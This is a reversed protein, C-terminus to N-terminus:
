KDALYGGGTLDLEVVDENGKILFCEESSLDNVSGEVDEGEEFDNANGEGGEYEERLDRAGVELNVGGEIWETVCEAVVIGEFCATLYAFNVGVDETTLDTLTSM